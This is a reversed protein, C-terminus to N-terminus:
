PLAWIIGTGVLASGVVAGIARGSSGFDGAVSVGLTVAGIAGLVVPGLARMATPRLVVPEPAPKTLCADLARQVDSRNADAAGLKITLKEVEAKADILQGVLTDFGARHCVVNNGEHRCPVEPVEDDEDIEQAECTTVFILSTLLSIFLWEFWHLRLIM